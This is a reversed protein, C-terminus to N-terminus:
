ISHLQSNAEATDYHTLSLETQTDMAKPHFTNTAWKSCHKVNGFFHWKQGMKTVHIFIVFNGGGGGGGFKDDSFNPTVTCNCMFNFMNHKHRTRSVSSIRFPCIMYKSLYPLEKNKELTCPVATGDV